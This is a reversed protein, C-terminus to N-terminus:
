SKTLTALAIGWRPTPMPAMAVWTNTGIQLGEINDRDQWAPFAGAVYVWPGALAACALRQERRSYGGPSLRRSAPMSALSSWMNSAPDFLEVSLLPHGDSRDYGGAVFMRTGLSGAACGVRETPMTGHLTWTDTETNFCLVSMPGTSSSSLGGFVYVCVGLAAASCFSRSFPMDHLTIWDSTGSVLQETARCHENGQAGGFVLLSCSVAVAACGARATPMPALSRWTNTCVEFKEAVNTVHHNSTMGGVVYLAGQFAVAACQARPTPMTPWTEWAGTTFDLAEVTGLPRTCFLDGGSGGVVVLHPL